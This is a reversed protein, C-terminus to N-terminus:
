CVTKKKVQLAIFREAFLKYLLEKVDKSPIMALEGIQLNFHNLIMIILLFFRNTVPNFIQNSWLFRKVILM